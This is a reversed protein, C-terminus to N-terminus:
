AYAYYWRRGCRIRSWVASRMRCIIAAAPQSYDVGHWVHERDEGAWRRRQVPRLTSARAARRSNAHHRRSRKGYRRAASSHGGHHLATVSAQSQTPKAGALYARAAAHRAALYARGGQVCERLQARAWGALTLPHSHPAATSDRSSDCWGVMGPRSVRGPTNAALRTATRAAVVPM